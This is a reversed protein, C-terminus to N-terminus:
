IPMARLLEIQIIFIPLRPSEFLLEQIPMFAFSLVLKGDLISVQFVTVELTLSITPQLDPPLTLATKFFTFPNKLLKFLSDQSQVPSLKAFDPPM